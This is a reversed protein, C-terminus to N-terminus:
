GPMQVLAQRLRVIVDDTSYFHESTSVESPHDLYFDPQPYRAVIQRAAERIELYVDDMAMPVM